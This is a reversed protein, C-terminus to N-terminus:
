QPETVAKQLVSRFRLPEEYFPFHASNEFEIWTKGRTAQLGDFFERVLPTPTNFDHRGQVFFVPVDIAPTAALADYDNLFDMLQDLSRETGRVSAELEAPTYERNKIAAGAVQDMTLKRFVGGFGEFQLLLEGFQRLKAHTPYPPPGLGDLAQRAQIDDATEISQKLKAFRFRDMAAAHGMTGVTVLSRFDGPRQAVMNFALMTGWSHGVLVIQERHFKRQLHATVALGDSVHQAFTLQGAPAQPDFSKGAGRQDWHVVVFDDIFAGDFARSYMMLPSGPGGHVFLVVPRSLNNGRYLLWQRSGNVEIAELADIRRADVAPSTRDTEEGASPANGIRGQPAGARDDGATEQMVECAQDRDPRDYLAARMTPFVEGSALMLLVPVTISSRQIAV